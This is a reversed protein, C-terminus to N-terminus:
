LATCTDVLLNTHERVLRSVSEAREMNRGLWYLDEAIRSLLMM